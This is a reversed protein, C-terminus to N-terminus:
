YMQRGQEQLLRWRQMRASFLSASKQLRKAFNDSPKKTKKQPDPDLASAKSSERNRRPQQKGSGNGHYPKGFSKGRSKNRCM